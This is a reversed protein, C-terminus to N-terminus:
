GEFCGFWHYAFAEEGAVTLSVIGFKEFIKVLLSQVVTGKGKWVARRKLKLLTYNIRDQRWPQRM